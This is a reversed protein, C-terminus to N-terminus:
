VDCARAWQDTGERCIQVESPLEGRNILYFISLLSAPGCVEENMFYYCRVNAAKRAKEVLAQAGLRPNVTLELEPYTRWSDTGEIIMPADPPIIGMDIFEHAMWLTVPGLIENEKMYFCRLKNLREFLLDEENKKMQESHLKEDLEVAARSKARRSRMQESHLKEDLEVLKAQAVTEEAAHQKKSEALQKLRENLETLKAQAAAEEATARSQETLAVIVGVVVTLGLAVFFGQISGAKMLALAAGIGIIAVIAIGSSEEDSRHPKLTETYSLGTGPVGVTTRVGRKGVTVNAGRVGASLSVGKKGLNM